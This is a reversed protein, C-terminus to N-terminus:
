GARRSRAAGASAQTSAEPAATLPTRTRLTVEKGFVKRFLEAKRTLTWRELSADASAEIELQLAGRKLRAQLRRVKGLHGRDLADAIRLIAALQRVLRRDVEELARFAVHRTTPEARRHYRAVLAVLARQSPSLGMLESNEIVYQSHKHHSRPSVFDGVDHLLAALRLLGREARGLGHLKRTAEFITTALEAVQTGHREDFHYRRGLALAAGFAKDREQGYDWVHFHKGIQEALIGEKVGVGPALIESVRALDALAVVVYLAPVIVDARDPRLAFSEARAESRLPALEGLLRRAAEVDLAAVEYGPAPCLAAIAGFSGGTGIAVEWVRDRLRRRHPTLVRDIYERIVRDESADVSGDPGLFAELLRVTGIQLSEAFGRETPMLETLELSGGGLDVLLTRDPLEFTERVALEVLRAEETGDIPELDLGAELRVRELLEGHNSAGRGSATI